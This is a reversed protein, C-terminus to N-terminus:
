AIFRRDDGMDLGPFVDRELDSQAVGFMKHLAWAPYHRVDQTAQLDRGKYLDPEALGPWDGFVKGGALVGGALVAAGGTGHDTGKSGNERATRGFETMAIVMTRSWEPGLEQKLTVIADALQSTPYNIAAPQIVHTDWGGISFTAIRADEKLRGAAYQALVKVAERGQAKREGTTLSLEAAAAAADAFLPDDRYIMQLLSREDEGLPLKEGPAWSRAPNEGSTILMTERGVSYATDVSTNQMHSLARNIWGDNATAIGQTGAELIDQGDFHSRKDRYPTSVAHAFGLEGTQWMPSLVGLKPHMGFRGDLDILGREPTLGIKPRLATFETDGYPSVVGLGDMAGRLIIVVLRNDGPAAAVTVPTILPSAAACCGISLAAKLFDRRDTQM